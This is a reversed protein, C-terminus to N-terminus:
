LPCIFSDRLIMHFFFFFFTFLGLYTYLDVFHFKFPTFFDISFVFSVIFELVIFLHMSVKEPSTESM